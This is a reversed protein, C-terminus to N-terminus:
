ILRTLVETPGHFHLLVDDISHLLAANAGTLEFYALVRHLEQSPISEM